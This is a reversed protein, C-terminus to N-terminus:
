REAAGSALIMTGFSSDRRRDVFNQYDQSHYWARALDKDQFRILVTAHGPEGEVPM